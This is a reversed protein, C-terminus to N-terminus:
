KAPVPVKLEQLLFTLKDASEEIVKATPKGAGHGARTDIRILIPNACAQAAQLAAAFKFSHAPYVRDDHDGTTVLTPPYCTSPKVRHLPSYKYLAQFQERDASSGYDDIWAWGITFTHFRLMDLVGVGPLTAGFLDPRQTLCAGVLLGGNSRGEIALKPTSTWGNSILWEAASIFDDFVNQKNLKTGGQHWSEGYEGGGRLNAVAYVGGQELWVLNTPSFAPTLPINFGGYGYLLCPTSANPKLGKKYTLFLPIKTGDKSAYFVQQTEYAEPDFGLKPAKWVSSKGSALDYRYITTPRAYSAFSYFTELSDRDGRFGGATGLGPLEIDKLHKGNLDFVRVLSRADKLYNAFLQSGVRSVSVLTEETEPIVQKWASPEPHHHNIAVVKGRSAGADTKFYFWPGDNDIFSYDHDFEGVLHVPEQDPHDFPRWLVRYKHDTGQGLTLLLYKGDDTVTPNARWEKHADDKWILSDESQPTGLKHFYLKQYFNAAKLDSGPTPEPFRGYFFGSGDPTWDADSFKSWRIEDPQDTASEVDRVRWTTWDSGAESLAYALKRGGKSVSLGSLAVTGDKSLTNPDLLPKGPEDVKPSTYLVSQNQLGSNYSYFYRGGEEFPASYKEYDWLATLRDKLMGRRPNGRFYAETIENEAEVWARTPESDLEELPRYPDAVKTGHYDDVTDSTPAKPYKRDESGGLGISAAACMTLTAGLFLKSPSLDIAGLSLKLRM